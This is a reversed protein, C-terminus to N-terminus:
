QRNAQDKKELEAEVGRQLTKGQDHQQQRREQEVRNGTLGAVAGGVTGGVRDSIGKGLDGVQGQAEQAKGDQNQKIGEQRLGEAGLLGGITEKGAGITQNWQGDSRDSDNKAVGSASVSYGGINGGVHSADNEADAKAQKNDGRAQDTTSGTLSGVLSQVGGTVKDSIAQLTSPESNSM